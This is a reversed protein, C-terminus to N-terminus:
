LEASIATRRILERGILGAAHQAQDTEDAKARRFAAELESTTLARLFSPPERSNWRSSASYSNGDENFRAGCVTCHVWYVWGTREPAIANNVSRRRHLCAPGSCFPCPKLEQDPKIATKGGCGFHTKM